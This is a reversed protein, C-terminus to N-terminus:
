VRGGDSVVLRATRRPPGSKKAISGGRGAGNDPRGKAVAALALRPSVGPHHAGM